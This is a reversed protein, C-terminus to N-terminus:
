LYGAGDGVTAAGPPPSGIVEQLDREVMRETTLHAAAIRDLRFWRGDRRRHCWALLFWHGRNRAFALPDVRRRDTRNGTRDVYDIVVVVGRRLAEEVNHRAEVEHGAGVDHGPGQEKNVWVREALRTAEERGGSTMAGLVKTLASRGEAAFPSGDDTALLTSLALAEAPTFTIPPLSAASDLVYGGGPGGTAWIPLGSQQLASVDRKVTRTAVEFRRALWASSRGAAGAARLEEAIAYLRDTRNM